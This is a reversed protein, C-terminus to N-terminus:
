RKKTSSAKTGNVRLSRDKREIQECWRRWGAEAVDEEIVLDRWRGALGLWSRCARDVWGLSRLWSTAAFWSAASLAGAACGALVQTPTHYELYVRSWAVAAALMLVLFSAFVRQLYTLPRHYYKADFPTSESLPLPPKHRLLLFLTLSLSFFALFQAHSSPMGYGKGNMEASHDFFDTLTGGGIAKVIPMIPIMVCPSTAGRKYNTKVFFQPSRLGNTGCVDDSNGSGSNVM